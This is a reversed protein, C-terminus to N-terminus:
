PVPAAGPNTDNQETTPHAGDGVSGGAVAGGGAGGGAAGTSSGGEAIGPCGVAGDVVDDLAPFSVSTFPAFSAVVLVRFAALLSVSDDPSRDSATSTAAAADLL